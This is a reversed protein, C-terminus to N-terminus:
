LQKLEYIRFPKSRHLIYDKQIDSIFYIQIKITWHSNLM